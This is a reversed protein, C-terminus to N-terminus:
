LRKWLKKQCHLADLTLTMGKLELRSILDRVLTIESESKNNMVETKLVLGAKNMFVSVLSVFNQYPLTYDTLTGKIGKGDIQLKIDVKSLTWNYFVESVKDFDLDMIVRRIASYSALGHKPKGLILKLDDEYCICFDELSRYGIYGSMSGLITILLIDKLSHRRGQERRNDKLGCLLETLTASKKM